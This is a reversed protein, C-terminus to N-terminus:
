QVKISFLKDEPMSAIMWALKEQTATDGKAKQLKEMLTQLVENKVCIFVRKEGNDADFKTSIVPSKAEKLSLKQNGFTCQTVAQLGDLTCTYPIQKPLEAEIRLQRVDAEIKLKKMGILGMKVGLVLFPGLHGHFEAARRITSVLKDMVKDKPNM